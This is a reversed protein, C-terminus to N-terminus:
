SSTGTNQSLKIISNAIRREDGVKTTYFRQEIGYLLNELDKNNTIEYIGDKTKKDWYESMNDLIKRKQEPELSKLTEIAM